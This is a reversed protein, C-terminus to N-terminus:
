MVHKCFLLVYTVISLTAYFKVIKPGCLCPSALWEKVSLELNLKPELFLSATLEGEKFKLMGRYNWQTALKHERYLSYYM